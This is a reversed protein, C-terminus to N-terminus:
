SSRGEAAERATINTESAWAREQAQPAMGHRFSQTGEPPREFAVSAGGGAQLLQTFLHFKSQVVDPRKAHPAVAQRRGSPHPRQATVAM